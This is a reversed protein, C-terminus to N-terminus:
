TARFSMAERLALGNGGMGLWPGAARIPSPSGLNRRVVSLHEAGDPQITRYDDTCSSPKLDQALWYGPSCAAANRPM